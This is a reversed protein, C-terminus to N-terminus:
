NNCFASTQPTYNTSYRAMNSIRFEDIYGPIAYTAAYILGNGIVVPASSGGGFVSENSPGNGAGGNSTYPLATGDVYISFIAAKRVVAFSHWTNLSPTTWTWNGYSVGGRGSGAYQTLQWQTSSMYPLLTVWGTGGVYDGFFVSTAPLAGTM